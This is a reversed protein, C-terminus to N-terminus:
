NDHYMAFVDMPKLKELQSSFLYQCIIDTAKSPLIWDGENITQMRFVDEVKDIAIPEVFSRLEFEIDKPIQNQLCISHMVERQNQQQNVLM